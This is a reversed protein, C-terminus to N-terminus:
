PSKRRVWTRGAASQRRGVEVQRLIGAVCVGASRQTKKKKGGVAAARKANQPLCRRPGRTLVRIEKNGRKGPLHDSELSTTHDRQM